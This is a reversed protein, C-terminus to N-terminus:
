DAKTALVQERLALFKDHWGLAERYVNSFTPVEPSNFASMFPLKTTSLDPVTPVYISTPNRTKPPCRLRFSSIAGLYESAGAASAGIIAKAIQPDFPQSFGSTMGKAVISLRATPHRYDDLTYENVALKDLDFLGLLATVAFTVSFAGDCLMKVTVDGGRSYVENLTASAVLYGAYMDADVEAGRLIEPDNGSRELVLRHKRAIHASEHLALFTAALEVLTIRQSIALESTLFQAASNSPGYEIVLEGYRKWFAARTLKYNALSAFPEPYPFENRKKKIFEPADGYYDGDVFQTRESGDELSLVRYLIELRLILGIPIGCIHSGAVDPIATVRLGTLTTVDFKIQCSNAIWASIRDLRLRLDSLLPPNVSEPLTSSDVIGGLRAWAEEIV